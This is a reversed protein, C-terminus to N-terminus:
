GISIVMGSSAHGYVAMDTTCIKQLFMSLLTKSIDPYRLALQTKWYEDALEELAVAECIIKM